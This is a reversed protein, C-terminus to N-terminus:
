GKIERFLEDRYVAQMWKNRVEKFISIQFVVRIYIRFFTGTTFVKRPRAVGCIRSPPSALQAILMTVCSRGSRQGQLVM